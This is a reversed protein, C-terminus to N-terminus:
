HQVHAGGQKNAIWELTLEKHILYSRNTQMVDLFDERFRAAHEKAFVSDGDTFLYLINTALTHPGTGIFGWSMEDLYTIFPRINTNFRVDRVRASCYVDDIEGLNLKRLLPNKRAYFRELFAADQNSLYDSATFFERVRDTVHTFFQM